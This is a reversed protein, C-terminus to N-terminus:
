AATLETERAYHDAIDRLRSKAPDGIACENLVRRIDGVAEGLRNRYAFARTLAETSGIDERDKARLLARREATLIRHSLEKKEDLRRVNSACLRAYRTFVGVSGATVAWVIVNHPKV